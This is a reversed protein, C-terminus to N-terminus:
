YFELGTQDFENIGKSEWNENQKKVEEPKAVFGEQKPQAHGLIRVESAVVETIYVKGNQGDYTRTQLEGVVGVMDGKSSYQALFDASQRWAVINPFDAVRSGDEKKIGRDVALTFQAVSLNNNTKKLEIDKTLRGVLVVQNIM